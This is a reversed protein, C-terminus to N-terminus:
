ASVGDALRKIAEKRLWRVREVTAWGILADQAEGPHLASWDQPHYYRYIDSELALAHLEEVSNARKIVSPQRPGKLKIFHAVFVMHRPNAIRLITAADDHLISVLWLGSELQTFQEAIAKQAVNRRSM